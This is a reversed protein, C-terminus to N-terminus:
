EGSKRLSVSIRIQTGAGPTSEIQIEGGISELRRRMNVLGNGFPRVGDTSFGKGDDRIAVLLRHDECMLAINVESAAAHKITNTLAEKVVMIMNHRIEASVKISPLFAPIDLRCRLGAKGLYGSAHQTLFDAFNDLTDYKPNVSWVIEQFSDVIERASDAIERLNSRATRDDGLNRQTLESLMEIETLRAGLDDHMDRAIRTRERELAAEHELRQMKERIKRMEVSRLTWLMTGFVFLIASVRFWWTM